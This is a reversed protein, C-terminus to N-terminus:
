RHEALRFPLSLGWWYLARLPSTDYLRLAWAKRQMAGGTGRILNLKADLDILLLKGRHQEISQALAAFEDRCDLVDLALDLVNVAIALLGEEARRAFFDAWSLTPAVRNLMAHLDVASKLRVIGIEVDTHISLLQLVLDYEVDLTLFDVGHVKVQRKRRWLDSYDLAFSSHRRLVWHLDLPAQPGDFEMHHTYRVMLARSGLIRSRRRYGLGRIIEEFAALDHWDRMLLDLDGVQRAAIQGYYEQALHLGKLFIVEQGSRRLATDLARIRDLLLLNWRFQTLFTKRLDEVVHRPLLPVLAHCQVAHFLAGAIRHHDAYRLFASWDIDAAGSLSEVLDSRGRIIAGVLQLERNAADSTVKKNESSGVIGYLTPM